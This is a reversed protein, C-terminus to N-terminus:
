AVVRAETSLLADCRKVPIEDFRMLPKGEVTDFTVNNNPRNVKALRVRTRMERNM